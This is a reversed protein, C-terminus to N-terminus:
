ARLRLVSAGAAGDTQRDRYPSPAAAARNRGGSKARYLAADAAALAEELSQGPELRAAGISVTLREEVTAGQLNLEQIARLLRHALNLEDAAPILPLVLAFEEGGMRGIVAEPLTEALAGAVAAIAKDGARHGFRDNIRKFHDIDVMLVALPGPQRTVMVPAHAEFGRRNFVNSLLDIEAARRGIAAADRLLLVTLILGTGILLLGTGAQSFLAYLSNTYATATSGSGFHAALFPKVLFHISTLSFSAVLVKDFFDRRSLHWVTAACLAATLAFPAQYTLEYIINDRPGGWIALRLVAASAVLGLPWAWSIRADFYRRLAYHTLALAGTFSVYSAMVWLGTPPMFSVLLESVPTLGGVAYALAFWRAEALERASRAILLFTAAFLVAVLTNFALAFVPGSMLVCLAGNAKLFVTPSSSSQPPGPPM